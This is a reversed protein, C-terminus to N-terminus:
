LSIKCERYPTLLLLQLRWGCLLSSLVYIPCIGPFVLWGCAYLGVYRKYSVPGFSDVAGPSVIAISTASFDKSFLFYLGLILASHRMFLVLVSGVCLGFSWDLSFDLDVTSGQMLKWLLM